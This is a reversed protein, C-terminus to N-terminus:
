REGNWGLVMEIPWFLPVFSKIPLCLSLSQVQVRTLTKNQFSNKKLFSGAQKDLAAM